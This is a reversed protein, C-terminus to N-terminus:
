PTTKAAAIFPCKFVIAALKVWTASHKDVAPAVIGIVSPRAPSREVESVDLLFDCALETDVYVQIVGIHRPLTLAAQFERLDSRDLPLTL